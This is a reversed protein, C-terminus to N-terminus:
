FQELMKGPFLIYETSGCAKIDTVSLSYGFFNCFKSWIGESCMATM